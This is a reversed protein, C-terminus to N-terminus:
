PNPHSNSPSSAQTAVEFRNAQIVLNALVNTVLVRIPALLRTGALPAFTGEIESSEAVYKALPTSLRHGAIPLYSVSCVVVPGAYGKDVKIKDFRKFALQLDYRQRGDFIPLTRQCAEKALGNGTDVAPIMLASLPDLIGQRDEDSIRVGDRSPPLATLETVNGNEILMHVDLPDDASDIKFIFDTPTPRADALTGRTALHAQGNMLLRMAGGVRGNASMVYEASGVDASVAVNGVTIRAFSIAYDAQFYTEASARDDLLFIPAFLAVGACLIAGRATLSRFVMKPEDELCQRCNKFQTPRIAIVETAEMQELWLPNLRLV